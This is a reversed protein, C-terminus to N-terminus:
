MSSSPMGVNSSTRFHTLIRLFPFNDPVHPSKLYLPSVSLRLKWSSNQWTHRFSSTGISHFSDIMKAMQLLLLSLDMLFYDPIIVRSHQLCFNSLPGKSGVRIWYRVRLCAESEVSRCSVHGENGSLKRFFVALLLAGQKGSEKVQCISRATIDLAPQRSLSM